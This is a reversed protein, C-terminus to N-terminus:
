IVMIDMGNKWVSDYARGLDTITLELFHGNQFSRYIKEVYDLCTNEPNKNM